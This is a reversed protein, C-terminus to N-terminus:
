NLIQNKITQFLLVDDTIPKSLYANFGASMLSEKDDKMAHATLAIAPIHKLRDHMRIQRLLTTGDMGPLSIDLLLLNPLSSDPKVLATLASTADPFSIIHYDDGILDCILDANDQNDEVLLLTKV